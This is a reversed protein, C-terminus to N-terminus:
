EAHIGRNPEQALENGDVGDIRGEHGARWAFRFNRVSDAGRHAAGTEVHLALLDCRAPRIRDAHEFAATAPPRQHEAAVDVGNADGAHRLRERRDLAVAPQVRPARLVHFAADGRHDVRRSRDGVGAAEGGAAEDDGGDHVLLMRADARVREDGVPVVIRADDGLRRTELNSDSM